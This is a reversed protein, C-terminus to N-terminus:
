KEDEKTELEAESFSALVHSTVSFVGGYTLFITKQQTGDFSLFIIWIIVDDLKLHTM